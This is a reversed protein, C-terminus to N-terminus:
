LRNVCYTCKPPRALFPLHLLPFAAGLQNKPPNLSKQYMQSLNLGAIAEDM